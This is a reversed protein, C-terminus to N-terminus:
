VSIRSNRIKSLWQIHGKENILSNLTGTNERYIATKKGPLGYSCWGTCYGKGELTKYRFQNLDLYNRFVDFGLKDKFIYGDTAVYFAGNSIAIHALEHLIAQIQMWLAPNFYPNHFPNEKQEGDKWIDVTHARSIGIVANRAVKNSRLRQAVGALELEGEGGPFACDLTLFEYIQNYAGNLDLYHLMGRYNEGTYYNPPPVNLYKEIQAKTVPIKPKGFDRELETRAIEGALMPIFNNHLDPWKTCADIDIFKTHNKYVYISHIGDIFTTGEEMLHERISAM